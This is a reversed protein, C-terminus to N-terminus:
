AKEFIVSLNNKPMEVVNMLHLGTSIALPALELDLDRVGWAPDRRKLDADFSLNGEAMVGKRAFPGYLFLKGGPALLRGAGAIIGETVAFPAIHIVNASFMVDFRQAELEEGWSDTSLDVSYPGGLAPSEAHEIWAAISKLSIDDYDTFTWSLGPNQNTLYVGHEGTGSGLELVRANAPMHAAYVQAIVDRNRGASPSFRRDGDEGRAELARPKNDEGKPYAANEDQPM